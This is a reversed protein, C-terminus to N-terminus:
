PAHHTRPSRLIIPSASRLNHHTGGNEALTLEHNVRDGVRDWGGSLDEDLRETAANTSGIQVDGLVRPLEDIDGVAGTPAPHHSGSWSTTNPWSNQQSTTSCPGSVGFRSFGPVSTQEIGSVTLPSVACPM